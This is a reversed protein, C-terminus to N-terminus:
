GRSTSRLRILVLPISLNLSKIHMLGTVLTVDIAKGTLSSTGDLENRATPLMLCDENACFHLLFWSNELIGRLQLIHCVELDIRVAMMGQVGQFGLSKCNYIKATTALHSPTELRM